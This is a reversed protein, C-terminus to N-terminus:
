LFGKKRFYDILALRIARIRTDGKLIAMSGPALLLEDKGDALQAKRAEFIANNLAATSQRRGLRRPACFNLSCLNHFPCTTLTYVRSSFKGCLPDKLVM